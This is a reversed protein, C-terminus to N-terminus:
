CPNGLDISLLIWQKCNMNASLNAFQLMNWGYSKEIGNSEVLPKWSRSIRLCFIKWIEYTGIVRRELGVNVLSLFEWVCYEWSAARKQSHGSLRNAEM